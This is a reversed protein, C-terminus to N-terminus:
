RRLRNEKQAGISNACELPKRLARDREKSIHERILDRQHIPKRFPKKYVPEVDPKIRITQKAINTTTLKDGEVFFIDRYKKCLPEVMAREVPILHDLKLQKRLTAWRVSDQQTVVDYNTLPETDVVLDKLEVECDNANAILM